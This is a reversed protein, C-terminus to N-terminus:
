CAAQQSSGGRIRGPNAPRPSRVPGRGGTLWGTYRPMWQFMVLALGYCGVGVLPTIYWCSMSPPVFQGVVREAIARLPYEHILYVFFSAGSLYLMWQFRLRWAIMWVAVCGVLIAAQHLILDGIGCQHTYWIDFDPRVIVRTAVLVLWFVSVSVVMGGTSAGLRELWHFRSVAMCGLLFFLLTETNLLYWGYVVPFVQTNTLWALLVISASVWGLVQHSTALRIIPAIVVLVMLDRLFWLQEAPPHLIWQSVSDVVSGSFSEGQLWNMLHWTASALLGILLYPIAVTRLRQKLKTVYTGFKGDDSRFYFLGAAFAFLPVAVRAVGGFLFEQGLENWSAASFVPGDPIDSKYHIGVVLITALTAVVQFTQKAETSLDPGTRHTASQM